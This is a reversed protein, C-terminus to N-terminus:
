EGGNLLEDVLLAVAQGGSQHYQGLLGHIRITTLNKRVSM